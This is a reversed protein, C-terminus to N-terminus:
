WFRSASLAGLQQMVNVLGSAAGADAPAVRALATSTLPV